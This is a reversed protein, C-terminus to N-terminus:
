APATEIRGKWRASRRRCSPFAPRCWGKGADAPPACGTQSAATLGPLPSHRHPSLGSPEEPFSRAVSGLLDALRQFVGIRLDDVALIGLTRRGDVVPLRRVGSARFVRYATHIDDTANVTIVPPTM